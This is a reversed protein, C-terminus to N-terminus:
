FLARPREAMSAVSTQPQQLASQSRTVDALFRRLYVGHLPDPTISRLQLPNLWKGSDSVRYDLHPGTALGSMGVYGIITGQEVRSGKKIGSAFRSLHLYSTQIRSNHKIKVYNGEGRDYGAFLVVGDATSMVPTGIPAGYDVGWHPRFKGLVPHFRKRSFGSTVRTFKVPAKLFQKRVPAGRSTYYAQAGDPAVYRFAEYLTGEHEFKAAQIPGFGVQDDGSFKETVVFSFEDGRRLAFFDVDWQFIDILGQVVQPSAGAARVAEYLSSEIIGHITREVEKHIAERPTVEVVQSSCDAHVTGWGRIKVEVAEVTGGASYDFRILEGTKLRKLNISQGFETTLASAQQSSLGGSRLISDLTDGQEVSVYSSHAPLPKVAAEALLAYRIPPLLPPALRSTSTSSSEVTVSALIFPIALPVFAIYLPPLRLVGGLRGGVPKRKRM